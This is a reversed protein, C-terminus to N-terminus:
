CTGKQSTKTIYLLSCRLNLINGFYFAHSGWERFINKGMDEPEPPLLVVYAEYMDVVVTAERKETVTWRQGITGLVEPVIILCGLCKM